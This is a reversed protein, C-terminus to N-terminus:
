STGSVTAGTKIAETLRAESLTAGAASAGATSAAAASADRPRPELRSEVLLPFLSDTLQVARFAINVQRINLPYGCLRFPLPDDMGLFRKNGL